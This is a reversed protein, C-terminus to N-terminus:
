KVSRYLLSLDLEIQFFLIIMLLCITVRPFNVFEFVVNAYLTVLLILSIKSLKLNNDLVGYLGFHVFLWFAISIASVVSFTDFETWLKQFVKYKENAFKHARLSLELRQEDTLDKKVLQM